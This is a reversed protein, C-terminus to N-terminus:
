VLSYVNGYPCTQTHSDLECRLNTYTCGSFPCQLKAMKCETKIHNFRQGWPITAGCDFECPAALADAKAQREPNHAYDVFHGEFYCQMFCSSYLLIFWIAALAIERSPLLLALGQPLLCLLPRLM